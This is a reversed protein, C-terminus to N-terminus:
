RDPLGIRSAGVDGGAEAREVRSLYLDCVARFSIPDMWMLPHEHGFRDDSRSQLYVSCNPVIASIRAFEKSIGPTSPDELSGILMVPCVNLNLVFDALCYGGRDALKRLFVTDADVAQRWDDGHQRRLSESNRVYYHERRDLARHLTRGDIRALFSDAIV